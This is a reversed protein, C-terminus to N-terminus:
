TIFYKVINDDLDSIWHLYFFIIRAPAAMNNQTLQMM